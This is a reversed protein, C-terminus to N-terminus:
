RVSQEALRPRQRVKAAVRIRDRVQVLQNRRSSPEHAIRPVPPRDVPRLQRATIGRPKMEALMRPAKNWMAAAFDITSRRVAREGLDPGIRADQGGVSNCLAFAAGFDDVGFAFILGGFFQGHGGLLDLFM